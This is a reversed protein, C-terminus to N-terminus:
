STLRDPYKKEVGIDGVKTKLTRALGKCSVGRGRLLNGDTSANEPSSHRPPRRQGLQILTIFALNIASLKPILM